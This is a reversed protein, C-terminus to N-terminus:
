EPKGNKGMSSEDLYNSSYVHLGPQTSQVELFIGNAPNKLLASFTPEKSRETLAFNHDYGMDLEQIREGVTHEANYFDFPSGDM